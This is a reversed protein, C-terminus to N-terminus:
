THTMRPRLLAVDPFDETITIPLHYTSIAVHRYWSKTTYAIAHTVNTIGMIFPFGLELWFAEAAAQLLKGSQSQTISEQILVIIHSIAQNYYPNMINLGHFNAPGYLSCGTPIDKCDQIQQPSRNTCPYVHTVM